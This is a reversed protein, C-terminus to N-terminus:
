KTTRIRIPVFIELQDYGLAKKIAASPNVMHCMIEHNKRIDVEFGSTKVWEMIGNIIRGSIEDDGDVSMASAYLGGEFDIIEYGGCDESTADAEVAMWWVGRNVNGQDFWLFDLPSFYVGKRKADYNQWWQDFKMLSHDFSDYGSTAMRCKPLEIIRIEPAKKMKDAIAALRNVTSPNGQYNGDSIQLKIEKAKEYLRKVDTDKQFDYQNIETIFELVIEKLEHLLAADHDIDEVKKGLVDLLIESSKSDFIRAIDKISINLKRLILIQELRQLEEESYMRYANEEERVSHILGMDEYYRLTRASIEYRASVERIKLRGM